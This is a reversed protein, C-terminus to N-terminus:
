SDSFPQIYTNPVLTTPQTPLQFAWTPGHLPQATPLILSHTDHQASTTYAVASADADADAASTGIVSSSASSAALFFCTPPASYDRKGCQHQWSNIVIAQQHADAADTACVQLGHSDM